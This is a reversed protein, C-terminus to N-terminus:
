RGTEVSFISDGMYQTLTASLILVLGLPSFILLLLLLPLVFLYFVCVM